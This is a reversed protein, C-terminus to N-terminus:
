DVADRDQGLPLEELCLVFFGRTEVKGAEKNGEAGCWRFLSM